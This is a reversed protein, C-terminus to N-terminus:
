ALLQRPSNPQPFDSISELVARVDRLERQVSALERAMEGSRLVAARLEKDKNDLMEQQQQTLKTTNKAEDLVLAIKSRVDAITNSWNQQGRGLEAM